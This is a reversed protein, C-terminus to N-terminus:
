NRLDFGWNLKNRLTDLFSYGHLQILKARFDEKRVSMEVSSDVTHSRSDLSALFNRGRSEIVFSIVSEDPVILPRVNLNHPSVPTIVFNNSHPLIVPGGCSLSYGTSGTPTSVMLGDAWYSNLYEGNIYCKVTIMSSTDKKTITFENLAFSTDGFVEKNTELRLLTRYDYTFRQEFFSTLASQIDLKSINALFGLRGTNIGLIPTEAHKVYTVTELLTGDGGLSIIADLPEMPNTKSLDQGDPLDFGAKTAHKRFIQSVVLEVNRDQLFSIVEQIFPITDSNFKHGHLAIRM